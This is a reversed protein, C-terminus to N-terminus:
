PALLFRRLPQWQRKWVIPLLVSRVIWPIQSAMWARAEGELNYLLFPLQWYAPMTGKQHAQAQKSFVESMKAQEDADIVASTREATIHSEEVGIHPLWLDRMDSLERNLEELAEGAGPASAVRQLTTQIAELLPEMQHHQETLTGYPLDPLKDMLYPFVSEEETLHHAHLMAALCLVYAVLGDRAMVDPYGEQAYTASHEISVDLARTILAHIFVLDRAIPAQSAKRESVLTGGPAM